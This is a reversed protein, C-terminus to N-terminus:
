LGVQDAAYIAEAETFHDFQQLQKILGSRSFGTFDLYNKAAKVAQEKYDVKVHAIAYAADADSFKDFDTLQMTLARKSFPMYEVYRNAARLANKQGTTVKPENVKDKIVTSSPTAVSSSLYNRDAGSALIAVAAVGVFLCVALVGVIALFKKM